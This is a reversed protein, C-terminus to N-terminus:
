NGSNHGLMRRIVTECIGVSGESLPYEEMRVPEGSLIIEKMTDLLSDLGDLTSAQPLIGPVVQFTEDLGALEDFMLSITPRGSFYAEYLIMSDLGIVLDSGAIVRSSEVSSDLVDVLPQRAKTFEVPPEKPHSKVFFHLSRGAAELKQEIKDFIQLFRGERGNKFLGHFEVGRNNVEIRPQTFLTCVIETDSLGAVARFDRSRRGRRLFLEELYPHGVVVMRSDPVGLSTGFDRAREDIVGLLDPLYYGKEDGRDLRKWGKWHDFSAFCPCGKVSAARILKGNSDDYRNESTTCFILSPQFEDLLRETEESSLPVKGVLNELQQVEVGENRFIQTAHSHTITVIDAKWTALLHQVVPLIVRAGGADQAYILIKTV